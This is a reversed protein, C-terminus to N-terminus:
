SDELEHDDDEHWVQDKFWTWLPHMGLGEIYSYSYNLWCPSDVKEEGEMEGSGCREADNDLRCPTTELYCDWAIDNRERPTGPLTTKETCM